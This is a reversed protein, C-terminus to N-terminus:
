CLSFLCQRSSLEFNGFERNGENRLPHVLGRQGSEMDYKQERASIQLAPWAAPDRGAQNTSECDFGTAAEWGPSVLGIQGASHM